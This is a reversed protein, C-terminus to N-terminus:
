VEGPESFVGCCVEVSDVAGEEEVVVVVEEREDEVPNPSKNLAGGPQLQSTQKTCFLVDSVLHTQQIVGCGLEEEDLDISLLSEVVVETPSSLLLVFVVEVVVVVVPKPVINELGAPVQSQSVHRTRFLGSATFHTAQSVALGPVPSLGESVRGEAKEATLVTDVGVAGTEVPNIPNPSLNLLGSPAHSHSVHITSFLASSVFHTAQMLAFGPADVPAEAAAEEEPLLAGTNPNPSM